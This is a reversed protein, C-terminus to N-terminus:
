HHGNRGPGRNDDDDDDDDDDDAPTVIVYAFMGDLLHGRVNCIVLYKGPQLFAIPEMRNSANSPNGTPATGLPGGAPAIGEYYVLNVRDNVFTGTTPVILDERRVGPTYVWIWHFGAVAFNVVGGARIRITPPLIHHNVPNGPQATNLGVGFSVTVSLPKDDDDNSARAPSAAFALTLLTLCVITRFKSRNM